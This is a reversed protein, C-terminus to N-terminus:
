KTFYIYFFDAYLATQILGVIVAITEPYHSTFLYRYIWNLLYLGRYGGLAGMYHTTITEAEGTKQLQILQPM